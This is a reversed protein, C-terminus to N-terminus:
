SASGPRTAAIQEANYYGAELLDDNGYIRTGGPFINTEVTFREERRNDRRKKKDKKSKNSKPAHNMAASNEDSGLYHESSPPPGHFSRSIRHSSESDRNFHIDSRRPEDLDQERAAAGTGLAKLNLHM